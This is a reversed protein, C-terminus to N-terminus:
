IIVPDFFGFFPHFLPLVEEGVKFKRIFHVLRDDEVQALVIVRFAAVRCVVQEVNEFPTESFHTFPLGDRRYNANYNLAFGRLSVTQYSSYGSGFGPVASPENRLVETLLRAQQDSILSETIVSISFPTDIVQRSGLAGAAGAEKAKYGGVARDTVVVADLLPGQEDAQQAKAASATVVSAFAGFAWYLLRRDSTGLQNVNLPSAGANM